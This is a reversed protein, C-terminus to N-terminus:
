SLINIIAQYAAENLGGTEHSTRVFHGVFADPDFAQDDLVVYNDTQHTYLWYEIELRRTNVSQIDNHGNDVLFQHDTLFSRDFYTTTDIIKSTPILCRSSILRKMIELGNTRWSSSVVICVDLEDVIRKLYKPGHVTFRGFWTEYYDSPQFPYLKELGDVLCLVGDIDLFLVKSM